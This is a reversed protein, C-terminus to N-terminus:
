NLNTGIGVGYVGKVDFKGSKMWDKDDQGCNEEYFKNNM